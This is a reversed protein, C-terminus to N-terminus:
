ITSPSEAPPDAFCPLFLSNWAISGRLPFIRLTSFDLSKLIRLFLSIVFTHTIPSNYKLVDVGDKAKPIPTKINGDFLWSNFAKFPMKEGEKM